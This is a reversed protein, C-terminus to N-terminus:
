NSKLPESHEGMPVLIYHQHCIPMPEQIAYPLWLGAKIEHYLRKRTPEYTREPLSDYEQHM